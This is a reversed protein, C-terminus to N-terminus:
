INAIIQFLASRGGEPCFFMIKYVDVSMWVDMLSYLTMAFFGLSPTLVDPFTVLM